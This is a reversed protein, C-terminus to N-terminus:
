GNNIKQKWIEADERINPNYKKYNGFHGLIFHWWKSLTILNDPDEEKEPYLWVPLIHHVQVRKTKGTVACAPHKKLHEKRARRWGSSRIAGLTRRSFINIFFRIM